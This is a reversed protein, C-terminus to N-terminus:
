APALNGAALTYHRTGLRRAQEGDHSVLVLVTGRALEDHLLVEAVGISLADLASTPEDLLLCAPRRVLARVLALRQREGTSLTRVERAFVDDPLGIRATMVEAAERTEPSFHADVRDAWWGAEAAVYMAHRRWEPAPMNDRSLDGLCVTGENPDLDAIMRLFLSKGAGSPGTIAACTGAEVTLDLPGIFAGRLKTIVLM